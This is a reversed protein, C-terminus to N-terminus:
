NAFLRRSEVFQMIRDAFVENARANPHGDLPYIRYRHSEAFSTIGAANVFYLGEITALEEVVEACPGQIDLLELGAIIVPINRAATLERVESFMSKMYAVDAEDCAPAASGSRESDAAQSKLRSTVKDALRSFLLDLQEVVFSRMIRRETARISFPETAKDEPPVHYDNLYCFGILVADPEYALAKHRLVNVYQRLSYGPVGFNIFEYRREPHAGNLREELLSHYADQLEVGLPMTFSDGLVAVRYTGPPKETPYEEDRLGQSNTKLDALFYYTDINPQFEYIVGPHASLQIHGSVGIDVLSGPKRFTFGDSGFLYYRFALELGVLCIVSVILLTGLNALLRRRAVM